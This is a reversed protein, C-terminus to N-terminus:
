LGSTRADKETWGKDEAQVQQDIAPKEFVAYIMILVLALVIMGVALLVVSLLSMEVFFISGLITLTIVSLICCALYHFLTAPSGSLIAERSNSSRAVGAGLVLGLVTLIGYTILHSQEM